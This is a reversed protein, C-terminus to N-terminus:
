PVMKFEKGASGKLEFSRALELFPLDPIEEDERNAFIEAIFVLNELIRRFDSTPYSFM